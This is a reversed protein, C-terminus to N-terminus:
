PTKARWDKMKQIVGALTHHRDYVYIWHGTEVELAEDGKTANLHTLWRRSSAGRPTM